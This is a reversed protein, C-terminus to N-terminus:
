CCSIGVCSLTNKKDEEKHSSVYDCILRAVTVEYAANDLINDFYNLVTEAVTEFPLLKIQKTGMEYIAINQVKMYLVGEEGYIVTIQASSDEARIPMNDSVHYDPLDCYTQSIYFMYADDKESWDTKYESEARNGEIDYHSEQQKLTDHDLYYTHILYTEDITIGLKKLQTKIDQLADEASAFSFEKEPMYLPLNYGDSKQEDDISSFLENGQYTYYFFSDKGWIFMKEYFSDDIMKKSLIQKAETDTKGIENEPIFTKGITAYDLELPRASGEIFYAKEPNVSEIDMNVHEGSKQYTAPFTTKNANKIADTNLESQQTSNSPSKKTDDDKTYQCGNLLVLLLILGILSYGKTM